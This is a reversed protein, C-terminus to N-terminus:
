SKRWNENEGKLKLIKRIMKRIEEWNEEKELMIKIMKDLKAKKSDELKKRKETCQECELITHM